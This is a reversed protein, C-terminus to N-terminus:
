TIKQSNEMVMGDGVIYERIEFIITASNLHRHKLINCILETDIGDAENVQCRFSRGERFAKLAVPLLELANAPGFSLMLDELDRIQLGGKEIIREMAPNMHVVLGDLNLMASPNLLDDLTETVFEGKREQRLLQRYYSDVFIMLTLIIYIMFDLVFVGIFYIDGNGSSNLIYLLKVGAMMLFMIGILNKLQVEWNTRMFHYVSLQINVSAQVLLAPLLIAEYSMDSFIGTFMWIAVFLIVSGPIYPQVRNLKYEQLRFYWVYGLVGIIQYSFILAYPARNMVMLGIFVFIYSVGILAWYVSTASSFIQGQVSRSVMTHIIALILIIAFAGYILAM